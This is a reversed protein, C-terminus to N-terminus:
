ISRGLHILVQTWPAFVVVAYLGVAVGGVGATLWLPLYLSLWDASEQARTRCSLAFQRLSGALHEPSRGNVIIWALLPPIDRPLEQRVNAQGRELREGLERCGRALARDGVADGALVLSEALPVHQEVLLALVDAFGALRGARLM